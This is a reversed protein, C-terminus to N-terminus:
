FRVATLGEEKRLIVANHIDHGTLYKYSQQLLQIAYDPNHVGLSKDSEIFVLNWGVERQKVTATSDGIAGEFDTGTTDLGDAVLADEM